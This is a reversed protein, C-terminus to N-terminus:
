IDYRNALGFVWCLPLIVLIHLVNKEGGREKEGRKRGKKM